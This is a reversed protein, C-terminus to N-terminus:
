GVDSDEQPFDLGELMGEAEKVIRPVIEECDIKKLAKRMRGLVAQQMVLVSRNGTSVEQSLYFFEDITNAAKVVDRVQWDPPTESYYLKDSELGELVSKEYHALNQKNTIMRKVPGMIDGTIVESMDHKLAWTIAQYKRPQPWEILTCLQDTYLAVYFSHEAVTQSHLRPLVNWRTVSSLMRERYRFM